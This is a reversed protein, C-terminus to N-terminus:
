QEFSITIPKRDSKMWFTSSGRTFEDKAIARALAKSYAESNFTELDIHNAEGVNLRVNGKKVQSNKHAYKDRKKIQNPTAMAAKSNNLWSNPWSSGPTLM